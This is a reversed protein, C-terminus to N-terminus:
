VFSRASNAREVQKSSRRVWAHRRPDLIRECLKTSEQDGAKAVAPEALMLWLGRRVPLLAWTSLRRGGGGLQHCGGALVDNGLDATSRITRIAQQQVRSRPPKWRGASGCRQRGSRQYVGEDGHFVNHNAIPRAPRDVQIRVVLEQRPHRLVGERASMSKRQQLHWSIGDQIHDVGPRFTKQLQHTIHTWAATQLVVVYRSDATLARGPRQGASGARAARM